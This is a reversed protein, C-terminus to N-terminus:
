TKKVRPAYIEPHKGGHQITYVPDKELKHYEDYPVESFSVDRIGILTDSQKSVSTDDCFIQLAKDRLL